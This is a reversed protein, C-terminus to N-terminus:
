RSVAPADTAWVKRPAGDVIVPVYWGPEDAAALRLGQVRLTAAIQERDTM